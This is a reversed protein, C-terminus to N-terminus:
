LAIYRASKCRPRMLASSATKAFNKKSLSINQNSFPQVPLRRATKEPIIRGPKKFYAQVHEETIQQRHAQEHGARPSSGHPPRPPTSADSSSPRINAMSTGSISWFPSLTRIRRWLPQRRSPHEISSYPPQDKYEHYISPLVPGSPWAEVRENILFAGTRHLHWWDALIVLHNLKVPTLILGKANTQQIFWNCLKQTTTSNAMSFHTAEM